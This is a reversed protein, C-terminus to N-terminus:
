VGGELAMDVAGDRGTFLLTVECPRLTRERWGTM